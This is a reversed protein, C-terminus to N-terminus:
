DLLDFISVLNKNVLLASTITAYRGEVRGRQEELYGFRLPSFSEMHKLYGTTFFRRSQAIARLMLYLCNRRLLAALVGRHSSSDSADFALASEMYWYLRSTTGDLASRGARSSFITWRKAALDPELDQLDDFLQLLVGLGFCFSAVENTLKGAVLYADALVSAGGKEISVRLTQDPDLIPTEGQQMLSKIQGAHIALLSAYVGPFEGRPYETEIMGILRFITQDLPGRAQVKNGALRLKLNRNLIAKDNAAVDSQDLYNDTYPYLLSYAFVSPSVFPVQGLFMQIWNMVWVNRLAQSLAETSIAPDFARAKHVFDRTASFYAPSFIIELHSEPYGLRERAVERVEQLLKERWGKRKLADAPCDPLTNELFGILRDVERENRRQEDPDFAIDPAPPVSRTGAWLGASHSVYGAFDTGTSM